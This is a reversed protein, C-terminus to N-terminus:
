FSVRCQWNREIKDYSLHGWFSHEEVKGEVKLNVWSEHFPKSGWVQDKAKSNDHTEGSGQLKVNM